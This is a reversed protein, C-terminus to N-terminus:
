VVHWDKSREDYVYFVKKAQSAFIFPDDWLDNGTHKLFKFNVVTMRFKDKKVGKKIDILDSKFLVAKYKGSYDM